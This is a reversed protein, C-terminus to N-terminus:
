LVPGVIALANNWLRQTWSWSAVQQATVPLCDGLFEQQRQRMTATLTEDCLLINNEYNLDFSRRDMNASGILTVEGDVTMTKAHLIGAQYEYIKVGAGLLDEYYSKSNAGVAFDDNRALFIISTDVGRNAAACLAALEPRGGCGVLM